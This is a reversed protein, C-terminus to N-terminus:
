DLIQQEVFQSFVTERSVTSKPKMEEINDVLEDFMLIDIAEDDEVIDFLKKMSEIVLEMKMRHQKMPHDVGSNGAVIIDNLNEQM